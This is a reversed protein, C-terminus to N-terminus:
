VFQSKRFNITEFGRLRRPRIAWGELPSASQGQKGQLILTPHQELNQFFKAIMGLSAPAEAGAESTNHHHKPVTSLEVVPSSL